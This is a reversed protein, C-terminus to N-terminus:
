GSNRSPTLTENSIPLAITFLSGEGLTSSVAITGGHLEILQRALALGLGSGGFRRAPGQDIQRFQEFVLPLMAPAIGIGPDRVSIQVNTGMQRARVVIAGRDTFKVANHLVQQLAQRLRHPDAAVLLGAPEVRTELTLGKDLARSRVDEVVRALLEALMVQSIQLKLRGAEISALDLLGELLEQLQDASRAILELDRRQEPNLLSDPSELLLSSYGIIATMPTRLEHSMMALFNAKLRTAEQEAALANALDMARMRDTVDILVGVFHTIVGSTDRLPTVTVKNWFAAGNQRYNLLTTTFPIGSQMARRMATVAVPDTDPGQLFRCNQGIVAARAYGTLQCFASNMDIIQQEPNRADTLVFANAAQWFVRDHLGHLLPPNAHPERIQPPLWDFTMTIQRKRERPLSLSLLPLVDRMIASHMITESAIDASLVHKMVEACSITIINQYFYNNSSGVKHVSVM